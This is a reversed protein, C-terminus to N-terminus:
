NGDARWCGLLPLNDDTARAIWVGDGICYELRKANSDIHKDTRYQSYGAYCIGIRANRRNIKIM